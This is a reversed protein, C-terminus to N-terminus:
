ALLLTWLQKIKQLALHMRDDGCRPIWLRVTAATTSNVSQSVLHWHRGHVSSSSVVVLDELFFDRIMYIKAARNISVDSGSVSFSTFSSFGIVQRRNGTIETIWSQSYCWVRQNYGAKQLVIYISFNSISARRSNSAGSYLSSRVSSPWYCEAGLPM